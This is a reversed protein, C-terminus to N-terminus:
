VGVAFWPQDFAQNEANRVQFGTTTATGTIYGTNESADTNNISVAAPIPRSFSSFATPYTVVATSNAPVTVVGWQLILGNALKLYGNGSLSSALVAINAFAAAQGTAGTGGKAVPVTSETAASGLGLNTRADAATTAGTGGSSIGLASTGALFNQLTSSFTQRIIAAMSRFLNDTNGVPMGTACNIGDISSNSSPTPSWDFLSAM